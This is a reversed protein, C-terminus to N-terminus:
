YVKRAVEIGIKYRMLERGVFFAVVGFLLGSAVAAIGYTTANADITNVVVVNSADANEAPISRLFPNGRTIFVM